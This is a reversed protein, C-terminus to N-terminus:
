QGEVYDGGFEVTEELAGQPSVIRSPSKTEEDQPRQALHAELAEKGQAWYVSLAVRGEADVPYDPTIGSAECLRSLTACTDAHLRMFAQLWIDNNYFGSAVVQSNHQMVQGTEAIQAELSAVHQITVYTKEASLATSQRKAVKRSKRAPSSPM